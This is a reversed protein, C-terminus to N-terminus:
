FHTIATSSGIVHLVTLHVAVLALVLIAVIVHFILVKGLCISSPAYNSYFWVDVYPLWAVLGQVVRLAWHAM